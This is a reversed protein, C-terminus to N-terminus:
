GESSRQPFSTHKYAEPSMGNQKKFVRCFYKTDQYGCEAAIEYIKLRNEALLEKARRMRAETVHDSFTRGTRSRILTSFYSPNFFFHEAARELTLDEKSNEQIWRLCEAVIIESKDLRAHRLADNVDRLRVELVTMLDTFTYCGPIAKLASDTLVSGILRDVYNRIRSKIKMLTLTACEKILNPNALGNAALRVFAARCMEIAAEADRGQLAEFLREGDLLIPDHSPLLEDHFLIGNWCEHFNYLNATQATRYAQPAETLLSLCDPGIGHTLRGYKAWEAGLSSVMQRIEPKREQTLRSTQIITVAQFVEEQLVNLSFTTSPEGFEAWARELHQLLAVTDFGAKNGPGIRFESFIVMGSGHMWELTELEKREMVTLSGNLWSLLLRNRYASSTLSLRHKLEESESYQRSEAVLQGEIRRLVDEVKEAEVPKLLYDYAGHRIATQAYEFLNYASVMVVKTRLCEDELMKLFSLGDINPMRIDTFVVDPKESRVLELASAGDKAVFVQDEPRLVQIMSAMGRRHRPEDDVVLIKM